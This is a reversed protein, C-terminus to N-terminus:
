SRIEGEHQVMTQFFRAETGSSPQVVVIQGVPQWGEAILKNVDNQLKEPDAASALHYRKIRV